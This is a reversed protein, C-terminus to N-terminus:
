LWCSVFRRPCIARYRQGVHVACRAHHLMYVQAVFLLEPLIPSCSFSYFPLVVSILLNAAMHCRTRCGPPCLTIFINSEMDFKSVLGKFSFFLFHANDKIFYPYSFNCYKTRQSMNKIIVIQRPAHQSVLM